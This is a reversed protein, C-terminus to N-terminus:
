KTHDTTKLFPDRMIKRITDDSVDHSFVIDMEEIWKKYALNHRTLKTYEEWVKVRDAPVFSLMIELTSLISENTLHSKGEKSAAETLLRQAMEGPLETNYVLVCFTVGVLAFTILPLAVCCGFHKKWFPRGDLDFAM